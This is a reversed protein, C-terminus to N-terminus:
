SSLIEKYLTYRVSETKDENRPNTEGAAIYGAKKYFSQAILNDAPIHVYIHRRQTSLAFEEAFNLAFRGVGLNRYKEHVILMRIWLSDNSLGNLKLWAIPVVGKRVIYNLEDEAAGVIFAERMKKHFQRTENEPIRKLHLASVNSPDTLLDCIFALHNFNDTLSVINFNMPLNIKFMILGDTEFDEFPQIEIQEARLHKQLNLSAENYPAVTCLLTKADLESLYERGTNVIETACGQRRYEPAIWLDTYLWTSPQSSSQIFSAYGIIEGNDNYMITCFFDSQYHATSIVKTLGRIVKDAIEGHQKAISHLMMDDPYKIIKIVRNKDTFIQKEYIEQHTEPSKEGTKVFGLSEWFPKGTIPDSTLYMRKAGDQKFLKELHLYMEKGYGNRRYEPLVFFEMIYGYGAKIFGKHEPHDIKGYLFGIRTKNDYCLELHRDNDGQMQIMSKIWKAIFDTPTTRSQHEDLERAYQWMLQEFAACTDKNEACLQVFTLRNM